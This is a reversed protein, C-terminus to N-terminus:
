RAPDPDDRVLESFKKGYFIVEQTKLDRLCQQLPYQPRLRNGTFFLYVAFDRPVDPKQEFRGDVRRKDAKLQFGYGEHDTGCYKVSRRGGATGSTSGTDM